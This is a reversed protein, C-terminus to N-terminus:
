DPIPSSVKRTLAYRVQISQATAFRFVVAGNLLQGLPYSQTAGAISIIVEEDQGAASLVQADAELALAISDGASGTIQGSAIGITALASDRLPSAARLPAVGDVLICDGGCSPSSQSAGNRHSARTTRNPQVLQDRCAVIASVVGIAAFAIWRRSSRYSM